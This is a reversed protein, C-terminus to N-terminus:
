IEKTSLNHINKLAKSKSMSLWVYSLVIGANLVLAFRAGILSGTFNLIFGSLYVLSWVLSFIAMVRGRYEEQVHTQLTVQISTLYNAQGLGVIILLVFSVWFFTSIAVGILAICYASLAYVM